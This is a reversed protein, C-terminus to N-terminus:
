RYSIVDILDVGLFALYCNCFKALWYLTSNLQHSARAGPGDLDPGSDLIAQYSQSLFEIVRCAAEQQVDVTPVIADTACVPLKVHKMDDDRALEFQLDPSHCFTDDSRETQSSPVSM